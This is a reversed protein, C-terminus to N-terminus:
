SVATLRAQAQRLAKRFTNAWMLHGVICCPLLAVFMPLYGPPASILRWAIRPLIVFPIGFALAPVRHLLEIAHGGLQTQSEAAAAGMERCYRLFELWGQRNHHRVTLNPDYRVTWGRRRIRESAVLDEGLTRDPFGDRGLAEPRWGSNSGILFNDDRVPGRSPFHNLFELFYVCWGAVNTTNAVGISGGAAGVGERRLLDVLRTMWDRPVLCDQDVCLWLRGSARRFGENRAAGASLRSSSVIVTVEPFRHRVFDATGDGSSEVVIIEHSLGAASSTVSDLCAGITALGRYAPIIVSVEIAPPQEDDRTV